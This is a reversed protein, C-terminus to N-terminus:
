SRAIQKLRVALFFLSAQVEFCTQLRKIQKAAHREDVFLVFIVFLELNMSEHLQRVNRFIEEQNIEGLPHVVISSCRLLVGLVDLHGGLVEQGLVLRVDLV